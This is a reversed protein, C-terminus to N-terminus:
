IVYDFSILGNLLFKDYVKKITNKYVSKDNLSIEMFGRWFDRTSVPLIVSLCIDEISNQVQKENEIFKYMGYDLIYLKQNKIKQNFHYGIIGQADIPNILCFSVIFGIIYGVEYFLKIRESKTIINLSKFLLEKAYFHRGNILNDDEIHEDMSFSFSITDNSDHPKYCKNVTYIRPMIIYCSNTEKKYIYELSFLLDVYKFNFMNKHKNYLEQIKKSIDYEYKMNKCDNSKYEKIAYLDNIARVEGQGGIGLLPYTKFHTITKEYINM